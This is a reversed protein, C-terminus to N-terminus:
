SGNFVKKAEKRANEAKRREQLKDLYLIRGYGTLGILLLAIPFILLHLTYDTFEVYKTVDLTLMVLMISLGCILGSM